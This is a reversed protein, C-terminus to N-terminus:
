KRLIVGQKLNKLMMVIQVTLVRDKGLDKEGIKKLNREIGKLLAEGDNRISETKM